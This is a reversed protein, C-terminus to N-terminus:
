DACIYEEPVSEVCWVGDEGKKFWSGDDRMRGADIRLVIPDGHRMGSRIARRRDDTLSVATRSKKDLGEEAISPLFRFTTGHFLVDPVDDTEECAEVAVSHASRARVNKREVDLEFRGKPDSEVIEVIEERTFGYATLGDVSRWGEPPFDYDRDHRLRYALERSRKERRMDAQSRERGELDSAFTEAMDRLSEPCLPNDAAKHFWAVAAGKDPNVGLGKMYMYGVRFQPKPLAEKEALMKNYKFANVYDPEGLPGGHFYQYALFRASLSNSSATKELLRVIAKGSRSEWGLDPLFLRAMLFAAMYIGARYSRVLLLLIHVRDFGETMALTSALNYMGPAYGNDAARKFWEEPERGTQLYPYTSQLVGLMNMATSRERSDGDKAQDKMRKINERSYDGTFPEESCLAGPIAGFGKPVMRVKMEQPLDDDAIESTMRWLAEEDRFAIERDLYEWFLECATEPHSGGDIFRPDKSYSAIVSENFDVYKRLGELFGSGTMASLANGMGSFDNCSPYYHLGDSTPFIPRGHNRKRACGRVMGQAPAAYDGVPVANIDDPGGDRMGIGLRNRLRLRNIAMSADHIEDFHRRLIFRPACEVLDLSTDIGLGYDKFRPNFVKWAFILGSVPHWGVIDELIYTRAAQRLERDRDLLALRLKARTSAGELAIRLYFMRDMCPRIDVYFQKIASYDYKM